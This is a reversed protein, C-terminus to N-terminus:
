QLTDYNVKEGCACVEENRFVHIPPVCKQGLVDASRAIDCYHAITASLSKEKLKAQHELWANLPQSLRTAITRKM